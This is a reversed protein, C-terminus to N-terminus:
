PTAEESYGGPLTVPLSVAGFGAGPERAYRLDVIHILFQNSGLAQLQFTPYRAWSMFRRGLPTDLALPVAPHSPLERAYRRIQSPDVHPRELWRFTGVQFESEQEVVFKRVLPNLLVPGAMVDGVPTGSPVRLERAVMRKAAWGSVAMMAVYIGALGLAVAAPTNMNGRRTRERRSSLFIGVALVLWVWPDVIFLTDGYFWRASFPMLWRVGYTNLTDLIPHSLTALGSLLLLNRPVLKPPRSWQRRSRGIRHVLLLCGTLLFPLVALALVGHTWGRRWELDAAPAGFYALADIDPLNAGIVLASAGLATLKGLGSRALAAGVL